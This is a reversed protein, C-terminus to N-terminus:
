SKPNPWLLSSDGFSLFRFNNELAYQYIKKWDEGVFAAVLLLLTSNPQHFNTILGDVLTFKYGPAILLQTSGEFFDSHTRDLLKLVTEIAISPKIPKNQQYPTWQQVVRGNSVNPSQSLSAGFWYLSELGRLSTTGVAIIRRNERIATQIKELFERSVCLSERHMEHDELTATKVPLFTGAGVHLTLEELQIGKQKLFNLVPKSFHLGATPAAVSGETKAYVTQYSELDSAETERNLYPPIPLIGAQTLIEGFTIEPRDWTFQVQSQQGDRKLLNAKLHVPKASIRIVIELTEGKWRKANGIMCTWICKGGTGFARSYNLDEPELCFIEIRTGSTKFFELRAHIVRTNNFVLLDGPELIEPLDKFFHTTLNGNEYQLLKSQDRESIPYRAIREDPLSYTFDEM